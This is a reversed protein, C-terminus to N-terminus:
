PNLPTIEVNGDEVFNINVNCDQLLSTGILPIDGMALTAVRLTDQGWRIRAEYVYTVLTTGDALTAETEGFFSLSLQEIEGQPLALGGLFGTDLVVDLTKEDGSKLVFTLPIRATLASVTGTLKM